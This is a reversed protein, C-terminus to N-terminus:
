AAKAPEGILLESPGCEWAGTYRVSRHTVIPNGSNERHWICRDGQDDELVWKVTTINEPASFTDIIWQEAQYDFDVDVSAVPDGDIDLFKLKM